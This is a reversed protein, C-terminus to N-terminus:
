QTPLVAIFPLDRYQGNHDLGYGIVFGDPIKFGHFDINVETKERSKRELLVCTRIDSAGRTKLESHLTKLTHGTDCIDDILLVKKNKVDSKLDSHIKLENQKETGHYSSVKLYETKFKESDMMAFLDDAFRKAGHLLVIATVDKDEAYFANIKQALTQLCSLIQQETVIIEGRIEYTTNNPM